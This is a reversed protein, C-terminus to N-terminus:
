SCIAQGAKTRITGILRAAGQAKLAGARSLLARIDEREDASLLASKTLGAAEAIRAKLAVLVKKEIQNARAEAVPASPTARYLPRFDIYGYVIDLNNRDHVVRVRSNYRSYVDM